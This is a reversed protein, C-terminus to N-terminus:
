SPDTTEVLSFTVPISRNEAPSKAGPAAPAPPVTPMPAAEHVAGVVEEYQHPGTVALVGPFRARIVDAEKGM